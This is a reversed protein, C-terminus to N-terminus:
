SCELVLGMNLLLQDVSFLDWTKNQPNKSFPFRVPRKNKDQPTKIDKCSLFFVFNLTHPLYPLDPLHQSFILYICQIFM